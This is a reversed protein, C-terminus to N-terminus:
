WQIVNNKCLSNITTVIQHPFEDLFKDMEAEMKMGLIETEMEVYEPYFLNKKLQRRCSFSIFGTFKFVNHVSQLFFFVFYFM